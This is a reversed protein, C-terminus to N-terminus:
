LGEEAHIFIQRSNFQRNDQYQPVDRIQLRHHSSKQMESYIVGKFPSIKALADHLDSAEIMQEFLPATIPCSRRGLFPTFVPKQLAQKFHEYNWSQSDVLSLAVTFHADCLYERRSVVPHLNASGDVKRADRVTHFDTLKRMKVHKENLSHIDCRVAFVFSRSLAQLQRMDGREIGLCAGLLGELGSRTPFIESPRYDEYTHKGWAQMVGKLRLILFEPM